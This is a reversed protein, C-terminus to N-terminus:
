GPTMGSAGILPVVIPGGVRLIDSRTEAIIKGEKILQDIVTPALVALDFTEGADIKTKAAASLGTTLIINIGSSKEFIPGANKMLIEVSQVTMIKIEEAHAGFPLALVVAVLARTFLPQM